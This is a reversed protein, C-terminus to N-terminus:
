REEFLKSFRITSNAMSLIEDTFTEAAIGVSACNSEVAKYRHSSGAIVAV